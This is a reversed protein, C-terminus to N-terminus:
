IRESSDGLGPISGCGLRLLRDFRSVQASEFFSVWKLRLLRSVVIEFEAFSSIPCRLRLLRSAIIEFIAISSIPVIM